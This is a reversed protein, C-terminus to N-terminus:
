DLGGPLGGIESGFLSGRRESTMQAASQPRMHLHGVWGGGDACVRLKDM